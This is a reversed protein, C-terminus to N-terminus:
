RRLIRRGRGGGGGRRGRGWAFGSREAKKRASGGAGEVVDGAEDVAFGVADGFFEDVGADLAEEAVEVFEWVRERAVFEESAGM